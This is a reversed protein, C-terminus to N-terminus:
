KEFDVDLDSLVEELTFLNEPKDDIILTKSQTVMFKDM